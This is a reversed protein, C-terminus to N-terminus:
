GITGDKKELPIPANESVWLQNHNRVTRVGEPADQNIHDFFDFIFSMGELVRYLTRRLPLYCVQGDVEVAEIIKEEVLTDAWDLLVGSKKQPVTEALYKLDCLEDRAWAALVPHLVLLLKPQVARISRFLDSEGKDVDGLFAGRVVHSLRAAGGIHGSHWISILRKLEPNTLPDIERYEDLDVVKKSVAM